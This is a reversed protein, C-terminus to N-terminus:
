LTSSTRIREIFGSTRPATMQVRNVVLQVVQDSRTSHPTTGTTSTPWRFPVNVQQLTQIPTWSLEMTFLCGRYQYETFAAGSTCMTERIFVPRRCHKM